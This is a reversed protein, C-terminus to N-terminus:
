ASTFRRALGIGALALAVLSLTAPEPVAALELKLAGATANLAVGGFLASRALDGTITYTGAGISYVGRSYSPDALAADFADRAVSNDPATDVGESTIGLLNGNSYVNFRDGGYEGDVVTLIGTQGADMTFTFAASSGDGLNIWELGHSASEQDSIDFINWQGDAAITVANAQASGMAALSLLGAALLHRYPM